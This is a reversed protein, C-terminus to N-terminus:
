IRMSGKLTIGNIINERLNPRISKLDKFFHLQIKRSLKKEFNKLNIDKNESEIIALDIDSEETDEGQSYSGFLVITTGPLKEFLFEIIGLNYLRELNRIKKLIFTNPDERNLKFSLINGIKEKKILNERKLTNISNTISTPAFHLKRSLERVYFSKTPNEFLYNLIKREIKTWKDQSNDM